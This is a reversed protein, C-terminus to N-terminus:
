ACMFLRSHLKIGIWMQFLSLEDTCYPVLYRYTALFFQKITWLTSKISAPAPARSFFVWLRLWDFISRSRLVCCQDQGRNNMMLWSRQGQLLHPSVQHQVRGVQGPGVVADEGGEVMGANPLYPPTIAHQPDRDVRKKIKFIDNFLNRLDHFIPRM